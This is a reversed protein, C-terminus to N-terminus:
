MDFINYWSIGIFFWMIEQSVGGILSFIFKIRKSAWQEVMEKKM